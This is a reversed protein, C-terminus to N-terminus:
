AAVELRTGEPVLGNWHIDGNWSYRVFDAVDDTLVTVQGCNAGRADFVAFAVHRANWSICSLKYKRM